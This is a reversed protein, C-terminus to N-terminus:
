KNGELELRIRLMEKWDIGPNSYISVDLGSELGYRIQVM